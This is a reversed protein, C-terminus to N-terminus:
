IHQFYIRMELAEESSGEKVNLLTYCMGTQPQYVTYMKM